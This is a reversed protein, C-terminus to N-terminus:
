SGGHEEQIPHSFTTKEPLGATSPGHMRISISGTLRRFTSSSSRVAPIANGIGEAVIVQLVTTTFSISSCVFASAGMSETSSLLLSLLFLTVLFMYGYYLSYLQQLHKKKKQRKGQNYM